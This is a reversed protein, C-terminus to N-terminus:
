LIVRAATVIGVTILAFEENTVNPIETEDGLLCIRQSVPITLGLWKELYKLFM